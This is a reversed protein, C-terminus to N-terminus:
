TYRARQDYIGGNKEISIYVAEIIQVMIERIGFSWCHRTGKLKSIDLDVLSLVLSLMSRIHLGYRIVLSLIDIKSYLFLIVLMM